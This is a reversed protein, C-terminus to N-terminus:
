SKPRRDLFAPIALDLDDGPAGRANRAKVAPAAPRNPRYFRVCEAHLWVTFGDGVATKRAAGDALGCQVCSCDSWDEDPKSGREPTELSGLDPLGVAAPTELV